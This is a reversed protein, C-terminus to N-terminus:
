GLHGPPWSVQTPKDEARRTRIRYCLCMPGGEGYYITM